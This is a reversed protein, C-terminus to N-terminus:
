GIDLSFNEYIIGSFIDKFLSFYKKLFLMISIGKIDDLFAGNQNLNLSLSIYFHM